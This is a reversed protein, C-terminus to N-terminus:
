MNRRCDRIANNRQLDVECLALLIQKVHGANRRLGNCTGGEPRGRLALLPNVVHNRWPLIPQLQVAAGFSVPSCSNANSPPRKVKGAAKAFGEVEGRVGGHLLEVLFDVLLDTGAEVEHGLQDTTWECDGRAGEGM